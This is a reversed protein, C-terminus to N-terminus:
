IRELYPEWMDIHLSDRSRAEGWIESADFVVGYLWQPDEDLGHAASDPFVHCGHIREITGSHGRVYRPLRTHGSPNMVRARVRDGPAFRPATDTQRDVASGRALVAAVDVEKLVRKVLVPPETMHGSTIENDSALGHEKLLRVLGEFWIRYYSSSLYEAPPIRERAHRSTDINWTGSAGMALTMALVRREWAAHFLPENEELPLPGFGQAGGLDQPGNM